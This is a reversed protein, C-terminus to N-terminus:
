KVEQDNKSMSEQQKQLMAEIFFEKVREWEPGARRSMKNYLKKMTRINLRSLHAKWQNPTLRYLDNQQVAALGAYKDKNRSM